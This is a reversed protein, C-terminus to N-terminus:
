VHLVKDGKVSLLYKRKNHIICQSICFPFPMDSILSPISIEKGIFERQQRRQM